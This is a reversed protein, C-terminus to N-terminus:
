QGTLLQVDFPLYSCERQLAELAVAGEVGIRRGERGELSAL